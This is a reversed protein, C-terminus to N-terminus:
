YNYDTSTLNDILPESGDTTYVIVANPNSHSITLDFSSTYLGSQQSFVPPTLLETLGTGTNSANPTSTYFYLWSGTGDPSEDILVGQPNTITIAEGGSSIKFNTHLPQGAITRDKDSAWVLLYTDPQIIFSPLTWKFPTATDDSLGYGQLNIPTSGYNYLEIWDSFDGDEDSIATNNSAM